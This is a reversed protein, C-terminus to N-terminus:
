EVSVCARAKDYSSYSAESLQQGLTAIQNLMKNYVAQQEKLSMTNFNAPLAIADCGQVNRVAQQQQPKLFSLEPNKAVVNYDIFDMNQFDAPEEGTFSVDPSDVADANYPVIANFNEDTDMPPNYLVLSNEQNDEDESM